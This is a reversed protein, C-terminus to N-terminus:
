AADDMWRKLLPRGSSNVNSGKLEQLTLWRCEVIENRPQPGKPLSITSEFLRHIVDDHKYESIYFVHGLTIGTEETMERYAAKVPTEDEEVRGGPLNWKAHRKRVFLIKGGRLFIITARHKKSQSKRLGAKSATM